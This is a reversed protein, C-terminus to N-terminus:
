RPAVSGGHSAAERDTNRQRWVRPRAVLPAPPHVAGHQVHLRPAPDTIPLAVLEFDPDRQREPIAREVDVLDIFPDLVHDVREFAADGTRSTAPADRRDDRRRILDPPDDELLLRAPGPPARKPLKRDGAEV